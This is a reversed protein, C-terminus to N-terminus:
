SLMRWEGSRMEAGDEEGFVFDPIVVVPLSALAAVGDPLCM